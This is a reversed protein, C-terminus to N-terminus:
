AAGESKILLSVLSQTVAQSQSCKLGERLNAIAAEYDGLKMQEKAILLAYLAYHERARKTLNDSLHSPLYSRSIEIARLTHAIQKGSKLLHHTESSADQFFCALPRPEYWFPYHVAIRKWMEWDFASHADQCFGGLTEYASRRVVISAFQIRCIVAIRGLWNDIVGPTEREPWSMWREEGAKNIRIQRCFAAGLLPEKDIGERLSSYFGPKVWDDDHLIHIWHGQAREICINFIHPHGVNVPHRYFSVRDGGVAEVIGEIEAQISRDAGNDNIVEIQMEGTDPAQALVSRLARELYKARNYVTIMVSWLPRHVNEPVPSIKPFEASAEVQSKEPNEGTSMIGFRVLQRSDQFKVSYKEDYFTLNNNNALTSAYQTYQMANGYHEKRKVEEDVYKIFTSFFKFHLLCGSESAIENEPRNTWHQGGALIFDIGYKILPVKSLYYDGEKGFIRQRLGGFYVIQNKFPGAKEYKVHYFQKDFYPCVELFDAGPSYHTDRIAKDSYMELHVAHFARKNKRDLEGCFQILHKNECEPYYLLEDADVILCWHGRGYTRLLLEFWASGFNAQNFSLVSHWLYVDPQEQLYKTTGDISNNDVILFKSVGKQRYYSLFYPLRLYENRVVTCCLVDGSNIEIQKADKRELRYYSFAEDLAGNRVLADIFIKNLRAENPNIAVAKRLVEIAEPLRDIELLLSGLEIYALIYDPKMRLAAQFGAIAREIKGKKHWVDALACQVEPSRALNAHNQETSLSDSEPETKERSLPATPDFINDM